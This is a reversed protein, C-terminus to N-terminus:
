EIVEDARLLFSEPIKLGLAKATKVNVLLRFKTPQQVPLDAPKAGRLIRDVYTAAQRYQDVLDVGYSVLGGDKVFFPFSYVAPLRHQAAMAIIQRRNSETVPNPLVVLGGNPELAFSGIVHEIETANRVGAATVQVGFSPAAEEIARLMGLQLKQEPNFIVAVRTVRPAVEKLVELSKGYMSYEAPTFGTINAGPHALSAVIGGGVPDSIQTFVIPISSTARQLPQLVLTTSVLMVDPQLSVIETVYARIREPDAGGWRTDIRVNRGDTWGLKELAQRFAAMNARGEPDNEALPSLVGIRRIQAPQQAHATPSWAAAAGGLFTIFDRRRM